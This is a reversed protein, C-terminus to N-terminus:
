RIPGSWHARWAGGQGQHWRRQGGINQRRPVAQEVCDAVIAIRQGLHVQRGDRQVRGIVQEVDGEIALVPGRASRPGIWM